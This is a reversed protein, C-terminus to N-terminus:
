KNLLYFECRIGFMICFYLFVISLGFFDEMVRLIVFLKCIVCFDSCYFYLNCVSGDVRLEGINEKERKELWVIENGVGLYIM